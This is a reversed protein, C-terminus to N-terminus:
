STEDDDDEWYESVWADVQDHIDDWFGEPEDDLEEVTTDDTVNM